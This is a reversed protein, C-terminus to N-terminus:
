KELGPGAAGGIEEEEEGRAGVNRWLSEV